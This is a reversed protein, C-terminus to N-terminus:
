TRFPAAIVSGRVGRLTKLTRSLVVGVRRESTRLARLSILLRGAVLTASTVRLIMGRGPLIPALDHCGMIRILSDVSRRPRKRHAIRARLALGCLGPRGMGRRLGNPGGGPLRVARKRRRSDGRLKLAESHEPRSRTAGEARTSEGCVHTHSGWGRERGAARGAGRRAGGRGGGRRRRAPRGPRGRGGAAEAGAAWGERAGRMTTGTGLGGNTPAAGFGPWGSRIPSSAPCRSRPGARRRARVRGRDTEPARRAQESRRRM